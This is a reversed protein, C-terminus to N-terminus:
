PAAENARRQRDDMSEDPRRGFACACLPAGILRPCDADHRRDVSPEPGRYERLVSAQLDETVEVLLADDSDRLLGILRLRAPFGPAFFLNRVEVPVRDAM